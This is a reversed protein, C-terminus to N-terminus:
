YQDSFPISDVSYVRYPFVHLNCHWQNRSVYKKSGNYDSVSLLSLNVIELTKDANNIWFRVIDCDEREGKDSTPQFKDRLDTIM